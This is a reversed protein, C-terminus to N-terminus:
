KISIGDSDQIFKIGKANLKIEIEESQMIEAVM